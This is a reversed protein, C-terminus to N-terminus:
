KRVPEIDKAIDETAARKEGRTEDMTVDDAWRNGRDVTGADPGVTSEQAERSSSTSSTNAASSSSSSGGTEDKKDSDGGEPVHPEGNQHDGDEFKEIRAKKKRNEEETKLAKTLYELMRREAVQFKESGRLEGELRRRCEESHAGSYQGKIAAKCGKCRASYGFQELDEKTISMRRPPPERLIMREGVTEQTTTPTSTTTTPRLIPAEGDAKPDTPSKMWPVGIIWDAAEGKWREGMPRRQITRVKWIGTRDAIKIEGSVGKVGLFVGDEWLCSMKALADGRRHRKWLVMEGFEIGPTKAPKGKCREYATKGDKGVQLRNLLFAAHEVIWPIVPHKVDM